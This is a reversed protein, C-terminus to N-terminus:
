WPFRTNTRQHLSVVFTIDIDRLDNSIQDFAGPVRKLYIMIIYINVKCSCSSISRLVTIIWSIKILIETDLNTTGHCHVPMRGTDHVIEATTCWVKCHPLIVASCIHAHWANYYSACALRLQTALAPKLTCTAWTFHTKKRPLIVTLSIESDGISEHIVRAFEHVQAVQYM